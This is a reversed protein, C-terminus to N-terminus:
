EDFGVLICKRTKTDLKAREEKSIHVFAINGTVRLHDVSPKKGSYKQKPIQGENAKTLGRNIL